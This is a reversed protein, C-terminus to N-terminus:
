KGYTEDLYRLIETSEYMEAGTNPDALFPVMMRGGRAVLAKRSTGMFKKKSFFRERVKPLIFDAPERKGVNHLLYPIEL